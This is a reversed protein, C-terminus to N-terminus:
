SFPNYRCLLSAGTEPVQLQGATFISQRLEPHSDLVGLTGPIHVFGQPQSSLQVPKLLSARTLTIKFCPNGLRGSAYQLIVRTTFHCWNRCTSKFPIKLPM